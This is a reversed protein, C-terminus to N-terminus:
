ATEKTPERDEAFVDRLTFRYGLATILELIKDLEVKDFDQLFRRLEEPDRSLKEAVSELGRALIVSRVGLLLGAPDHDEVYEELCTELFSRQSEADRLLERQMFKELTEYRRM